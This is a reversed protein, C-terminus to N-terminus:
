FLARLLPRELGVHFRARGAPVKGETGPQMYHLAYARRQRDTENPQTYHLTQCHHLMVGGAPLEIVKANSRDVGEDVERLAKTSKAQDHWVPQLHSGPVVQMAGNERVADDLTIWCSVLTAPRCQWYGNDQHWLVPGGHHAPKFLAQDHYLQINPGIVDEVMDLLRTDYLLKHFLPSRLFMNMIQLMQQGSGSEAKGDDSLNRFRKTASAEEFLRNYEVRLEEIEEDEFLKGIRLYGDKWYSDLQDQTLTM